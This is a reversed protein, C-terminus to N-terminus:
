IRNPTFCEPVIKSDLEFFKSRHSESNLFKLEVYGKGAETQVLDLEVAAVVVAAAVVGEVAVGEVAVVAAVVGEVAAVVCVCAFFSVQSRILGPTFISSSQTM